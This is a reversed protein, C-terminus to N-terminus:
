RADELLPKLNDPISVDGWLQSLFSQDVFRIKFLDLHKQTWTSAVGTGTPFIVPQNDEESVEQKM